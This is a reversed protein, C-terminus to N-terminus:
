NEALSRATALTRDSKTAEALKHRPEQSSINEVSLEKEVGSGASGGEQVGEAHVAVSSTNLEPELSVEHVVERNEVGVDAQDVVVTVEKSQPEPESTVIHPVIEEAEIVTGQSVVVVQHLTGEEMRPPMYHVDEEELDEKLLLQRGLYKRDEDTSLKFSLIATWSIADKPQTLATRTFVRDGVTVQVNCNRGIAKSSNFANVTFTEGTFQSERVCEEPVVSREAGSDQAEEGDQDKEEEEGGEVQNGDVGERQGGLPKVRNIPIQIQKVTTTVNKPCQPSKHGAQHCNFCMIPKRETKTMNTPTLAPTVGHSPSPTAQKEGALQNLCDRSIHGVKGCHYCTATKKYGTSQQTEKYSTRSTVEQKYILRGEATCKEWEEIKMIYRPITTTETLDLYNKLEQSLTSRLCGVTFKEVIEAETEAEQILKKIWRKLKDALLRPKPKEGGSLPNFMAEATSTFTMASVGTMAAKIDEFTSDVNELVEIIKEGAELTIQPQVHDMWDEQPVMARVLAAELYRIFVEPDDKDKMKPINLKNVNVNRLLVPPATKLTTM